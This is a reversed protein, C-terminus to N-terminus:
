NSSKWQWNQQTLTQTSQQTPVAPHLNNRILHQCSVNCWFPPCLSGPQQTNAIPSLKRLPMLCRPKKMMYFAWSEHCKGRIALDVASSYFCIVSLFLIYGSGNCIGDTEWLFLQYFFIVKPQFRAHLQWKFYAPNAKNNKNKPPTSFPSNSPLHFFVSIQFWLTRTVPM